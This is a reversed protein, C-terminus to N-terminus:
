NIKHPLCKASFCVKDILGEFGHDIMYDLWGDDRYPQIDVQLGVGKTSGAVETVLNAFKVKSMGSPCALVWHAHPHDGYAGRGLVAASAIRYNNRRVGNRTFIQRNLRSLFLRCCKEISYIPPCLGAKNRSFTLTVSLDWDGLNRLWPTAYNSIKTKESFGDTACSSSGLVAHLRSKRTRM